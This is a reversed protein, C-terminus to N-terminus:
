TKGKEVRTVMFRESDFGDLKRREAEAVQATYFAVRKRLGDVSDTVNALHREQADLHQKSNALCERHWKMSQKM